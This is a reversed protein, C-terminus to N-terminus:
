DNGNKKADHVQRGPCDTANYPNGATISPARDLFDLGVRKRVVKRASGNEVSGLANPRSPKRPFILCLVSIMLFSKVLIQRCDPPIVSSKSTHREDETMDDQPTRGVIVGCAQFEALGLFGSAAASPRRM